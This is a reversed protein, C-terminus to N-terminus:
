NYAYFTVKQAKSTGQIIYSRPDKNCELVKINSIHETASFLFDLVPKRLFSYAETTYDILTHEEGQQQIKDLSFIEFSEEKSEQKKFKLKLANYSQYAIKFVFEKFAVKIYEKTGHLRCSLSKKPYIIRHEFTYIHNCWEKKYQMDGMGMEYSDYQNTICWDLNKYIEITGLGFKSYDIDYSSVASFMRKEFHNNLAVVIPVDDAYIVFLSAKKDNILSFFTEHYHDWRLLAKSVDNRQEFRRVLMEQLSKMLFDYQEKEIEGYFTKYSINFCTELRRLTRRLNKAKRKFRNKIYSDVTDFGKFFIAYGKFFQRVSKCGFVTEDIKPDLYDPVFMISYIISSTNVEEKIYDSNIVVEKPEQCNIQSFINPIINKEYISFFYDLQKKKM